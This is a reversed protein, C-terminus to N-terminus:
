SVVYCSYFCMLMRPPLPPSDRPTNPPNLDLGVHCALVGIVPLQKSNAMNLIKCLKLFTAGLAYVNVQACSHIRYM